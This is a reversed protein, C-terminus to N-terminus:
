IVYVIYSRMFTTYESGDSNTTGKVDGLNKGDKAKLHYIIRGDALRSVDSVELNNASVPICKWRTLGLYGAFLVACIATAIVAGKM